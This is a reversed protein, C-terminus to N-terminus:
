LLVAVVVHLILTMLHYGPTSLGWLQYGAWFATFTLPYYQCTAGPKIWIDRLGSPTTLAPNESIHTDDDWVFGGRLAPWYVVAVALLLLLAILLDRYRSRPAAVSASASASASCAAMSRHKPKSKM